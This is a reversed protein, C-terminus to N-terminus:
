RAKKCVVAYNNNGSGQDTNFYTNRSSQGVSKHCGPPATPWPGSFRYHLGITDSIGECVAKDTVAQYGMPCETSGPQGYAAQQCVVVYGPEVAGTPHKNFHTLTGGSGDPDQEIQMHCGPTEQSNYNAGAYKLGNAKSLAKCVAENGIPMYRDPCVNSSETSYKVAQPPLAEIELKLKQTDVFDERAIALKEQAKLQAISDEGGGELVNMQLNKQLLSVVQQPKNDSPCEGVSSCHRDEGGNNLVGMQPTSELLSAVNDPNIDNPREGGGSYQNAKGVTTAMLFVVAMYMVRTM